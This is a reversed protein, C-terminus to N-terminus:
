QLNASSFVLGHDANFTIKRNNPSVIICLNTDLQRYEIFELCSTLEDNSFILSPTSQNFFYYLRFMAM